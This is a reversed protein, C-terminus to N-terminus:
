ETLRYTLRGLLFASLFEVFDFIEVFAEDAQTINIFLGFALLFLILLLMLTELLFASVCNQFYNRM